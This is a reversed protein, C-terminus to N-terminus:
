APIRFGINEFDVLAIFLAQNARIREVPWDWWKKVFLRRDAGRLM